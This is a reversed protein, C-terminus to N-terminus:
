RWASRARKPQDQENEQFASFSGVSVRVTGMSVRDGTKRNWIGFTVKAKSNRLFQVLGTEEFNRIIYNPMPDRRIEVGWAHKEASVFIYTSEVLIKVKRAADVGKKATGEFEDAHPDASLHVDDAETALRETPSTIYACFMDLAADGAAAASCDARVESALVAQYKTGLEFNVLILPRPPTSLTGSRKVKDFLADGRLPGDKGKKFVTFYVPSAVDSADLIRECSAGGFVKDIDCPMEEAGEEARPTRVDKAVTHSVEAGGVVNAPEAVVGNPKFPRDEQAILAAPRPQMVHVGAGGSTLCALLVARLAPRGKLPMAM